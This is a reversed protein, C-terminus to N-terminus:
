VASKIANVIYDILEKIGDVTLNLNDFTATRAVLMEISTVKGPIFISAIIMGIGLLICVKAWKVVTNCKNAVEKNLVDVYKCQGSDYQRDYIDDDCHCRFLLLVIGALILLSGFIAICTQLIGLINIWYFVAPDIIYNM